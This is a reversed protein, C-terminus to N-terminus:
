ETGGYIIRNFEIDNIVIQNGTFPNVTNLNLDCIITSEFASLDETEIWIINSMNVTEESELSELAMNTVTIPIDVGGIKGTLTAGTLAESEALVAPNSLVIKVANNSTNTIRAVNYPLNDVVAKSDIRRSSVVANPIADNIARAIPTILNINVNDNIPEASVSKAIVVANRIIDNLDIFGDWGSRAILGSGTVIANAGRPQIVASGGSILVDLKQSGGMLQTFATSFNFLNYGDSANVRYTTFNSGNLRLIVTVVESTTQELQITAVVFPLSEQETSFSLSVVEKLATDVTIQEKNEEYIVLTNNRNTSETKKNQMQQPSQYEKDVEPGTATFDISVGGDFNLDYSMPITKFTGNKTTVTIIDSVDIRIDGLIQKFKCPRYKFGGVSEFVKNILIDTAYPNSISIGQEATRNGSIVTIRDTVDAKLFQVEFDAEDVDADGIYDGNTSYGVDTYWYFDLNGVRDFRANKGCLAAIHGIVERMTMSVPNTFVIVNELGSINYSFGLIRSMEEIVKDATIPYTLFTKYEKDALYMMDAASITTKKDKSVASRVYFDGFPIYEVSDGLILGIELRFKRNKINQPIEVADIDVTTATTTGISLLTDLNAGGKLKVSYIGNDVIFDEFIMRARFSRSYKTIEQKFDNSVNTFM